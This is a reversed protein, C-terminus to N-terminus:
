AKRPSAPFLSSLFPDSDTSLSDIKRGLGQIEGRIRGVDTMSARRVPRPSGPLRNSTGLLGQTKSLERNLDEAQKTLDTIVGM